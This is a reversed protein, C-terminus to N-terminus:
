EGTRFAHWVGKGIEALFFCGSLITVWLIPYRYRVDFQILYYILPFLLLWLLLIAAADRNKKWMLWLGPVSLLGMFWVLLIGLPVQTDRLPNGSPSPFWFAVIRQFTLSTFPGPNSKIWDLAERMRVRNYEYEGLNRVKEAEGAAKNPHNEGFCQSLENAKFWFAACPNNSVALELGLNDRMFIFHGFVRYNRMLWPSIILFPVLLLVLKQHQPLRTRVLVWALWALMILLPVAALWLFIGWLVAATIAKAPSFRGTVIDYMFFSLAVALLAAYFSEWMPYPPLKAVLFVIAALAGTNLGLGFHRALFPLLALQLGLVVVLAWSLALGAYTNEGFWRMLVSLFFPFLPSLHASPGTALVQFPDSFTGKEALSCALQLSEYGTACLTHPLSSWVRPTLSPEYYRYITAGFILAAVLLSVVRNAPPTLVAMPAVRPASETTMKM